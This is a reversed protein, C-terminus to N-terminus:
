FLGGQIFGLDRGLHKYAKETAKRGRQTRILFGEQILFPEYVEELTGANEGIATAITTATAGSSPTTYAMNLTVLTNTADYGTVRFNYTYNNVATFTVTYIGATASLWGITNVKPSTAKVKPCGTVNLFGDADVYVDLANDQITNLVSINSIM